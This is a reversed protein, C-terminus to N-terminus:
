KQSKLKKVRSELDVLFQEIGKQSIASNFESRQTEILSIGEAIFDLIVLKGNREKVRFDVSIPVNSDKPLFESKAVFFGNQEVVDIVTFKRGNYNKFKPGYTNIMFERYLQMFKERNQDSITKYNKGLVFRAIWEADIVQDIVNIIKNKRQEDSVSKDSAIAIIKNGVGSVFESIQSQNKAEQAFASQAFIILLLTTFVKKMKTKLKMSVDKITLVVFRPM